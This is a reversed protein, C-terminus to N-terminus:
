KRFNARHRLVLGLAAICSAVASWVPNIEPVPTFSFDHIAIKQANPNAPATSGSGYTFRFSSIANTGFSITVNGNGSGTGSNAVNATGNVVQTLGSGTLTNGSSTTITPAIQTVGDVGLAFINRLQDQYSSSGFDVDFITFSVNTAGETYQASFSVSLTIAQSTNTLDFYILLANQVPTLGGEMSTGINPTAANPPTNDPILQATSGSVTVTIDNGPNTPDLDYSNSLSGPTWAVSDWDLVVASATAQLVLALVGCLKHLSLHM